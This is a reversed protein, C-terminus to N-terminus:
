RSANNFLGEAIAHSECLQHKCHPCSKISLIQFTMTSKRYVTLLSQLPIEIIYLKISTSNGPESSDFIKALKFSNDVDDPCGIKFKFCFIIYFSEGLIRSSDLSQM